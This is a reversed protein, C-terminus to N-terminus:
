FSCAGYETKPDERCNATKRLARRNNKSIREYIAFQKYTLADRLEIDREKDISIGKSHYLVMDNERGAYAADMALSAKLNITYVKPFQAAFLGVECNMSATLETARQAPTKIQASTKTGCLAIGVISVYIYTKIKKMTNFNYHPPLVPTLNKAKKSSKLNKKITSM